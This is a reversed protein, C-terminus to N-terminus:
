FHFIKILFQNKLIMLSYKGENDTGICFLAHQIAWSPWLNEAYNITEDLMKFNVNELDLSESDIAKAIDVCISDLDLTNRKSDNQEKNRQVFFKYPNTFFHYKLGM